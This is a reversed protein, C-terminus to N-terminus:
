ATVHTVTQRLTLRLTRVEVECPFQSGDLLTVHCVVIKMKKGLKLPSLVSSEQTEEGGKEGKKPESDAEKEEKM